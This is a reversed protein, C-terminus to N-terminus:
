KDRCIPGIGIQRSLEDTLTRNCVGCSGLEQGYRCKAGHEDKAIETLLANRRDRDRIPHFDDSAQINIFTLGKWKGETPTKVRFFKLVGDEEIAYYGDSVKVTPQGASTSQRPKSPMAMLKEIWKSAAKRELTPIQAKVAEVAAAVEEDTGQIKGGARLDKEALLTNIFNIQKETPPNVPTATTSEVPTDANDRFSRTRTRMQTIEKPNVQESSRM